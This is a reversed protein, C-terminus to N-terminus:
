RRIGSLWRSKKVRVLEENKKRKGRTETIRVESERKDRVDILSKLEVGEERMEEEVGGNGGENERREEGSM